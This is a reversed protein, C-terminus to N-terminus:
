LLEPAEKSLREVIRRVDQDRDKKCILTADETQVVVLDDVGILAITHGPTGHVVNGSADEALCRAQGVYNGEADKPLVEEMASWSGVDSWMYSIPLVKINDAKEILGVDVSVAELEGYVKQVAPDNAGQLAGWTKPAHQQLAAEISETTWIFAGSNWLFKGSRLYEEATERAPKEVFRTVAFVEHGLSEPEASGLEIYGFGTAPHTPRIGMTVLSGEREAAVNAAARLTDRFSEAPEIIHDAPLIVQIASPDRMAIQASAWAVCPLTNRGMPEALLNEAPLDPLQSAVAEAVDSSTVVLINETEVLGRVREVTDQLLSRGGSPALLQKPFAQRSAPWLRTGGGGAMIVAWTTRSTM